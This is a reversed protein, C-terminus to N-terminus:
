AARRRGLDAAGGPGVGRREASRFFRRRERGSVIATAAATDAACTAWKCAARRGGCCFITAESARCSWANIDNTLIFNETMRARNNVEATKAAYSCFSSFVGMFEGFSTATILVLSPSM